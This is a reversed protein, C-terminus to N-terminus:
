RTIDRTQGVGPAASAEREAIKDQKAPDLSREPTKVREWVMSYKGEQVEVLAGRMPQAFSPDRIVYSLCQNGKQSTKEWGAGIEQNGIYARHTPQNDNQREVEIFTIDAEVSLTQMRGVYHTGNKQFEGYNAM